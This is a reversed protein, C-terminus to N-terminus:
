KGGAAPDLWAAPTRNAAAVAKEAGDKMGQAVVFALGSDKLIARGQEVNTGEMRIVIPVTGGKGDFMYYWKAAQNVIQEVSLLAFDLRQHTLIPRMGGLAAGIVLGTLANESSTNRTLM